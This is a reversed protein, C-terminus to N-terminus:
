EGFMGPEIRQWVDGVHCFAYFFSEINEGLYFLASPFPASNEASGFKLRGSVFCAPYDRLMSWWKTDTRAPVLAIAEATNGAKHEQCLKSVWESIERGYPPNMYVKGLWQKRLGDDAVTYHQAAPVNPKGKNSCPDLDIEGLCEIVAEIIIQPTYHEPTESSFHVGLRAGDKGNNKRITQEIKSDDGGKFVKVTKEVHAATVKGAPATKVAEQWAQRQEKPKLSTLPRAQSENRPKVGIPALNRVVEAASITRDIHTRSLGWRDQCYREFTNYNDRYLRQDRIEALAEGVDVFTQLGNEIVEECVSFRDEEVITLSQQDGM